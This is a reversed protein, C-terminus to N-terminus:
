FKTTSRHQLRVSRTKADLPDGLIAAKAMITLKEVIEDYISEEVLLRSGAVCVEGKNWFIGGSPQRYPPTSILMPSYSIRHNAV